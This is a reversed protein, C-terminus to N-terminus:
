PCRPQQTPTMRQNTWMWKRLFFQPRPPLLHKAKRGCLRGSCGGISLWFQNVSGILLSSGESAGTRPSLKAFVHQFMRVNAHSCEEIVEQIRSFGRQSVSGTTKLSMTSIRVHLRVCTSLLHTRTREDKWRPERPKRARKM